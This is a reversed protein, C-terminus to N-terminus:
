LDAAKDIPDVGGFCGAQWVGVTGGAGPSGLLCDLSARADGGASGARSSGPSGPSRAHPQTGARALGAVLPRGERAHSVAPAWHRRIVPTPRARALSQCPEPVCPEFSVEHLSM